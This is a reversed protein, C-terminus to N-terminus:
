QERHSEQAQCHGVNMRFSQECYQCSISIFGDSDQMSQLQAIDMSEFIARMKQESCQCQYRYHDHGLLHCQQAAFGRLMVTEPDDHVIENSTIKALAEVSEFWDDDSCGPMAELMIATKDILVVDARTQVSQALYHNIHDALFTHDSEITSIYPQDIGLDRVTSVHVPVGMWEAINNQHHPQESRQLISEEKWNIYGRVAGARAESLIRQIPTNQNNQADLQLVQRVGGKNVSLLLISALLTQIFLEGVEHNLGHIKCAAAAIHNGRIIVGRTSTKPLMFRILSDADYAM